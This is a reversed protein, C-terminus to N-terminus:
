IKTSFISKQRWLNKLKELFVSMRFCKKKKPPPPSSALLGLLHSSTISINKRRFCVNLFNCVLSLGLNSEISGFPLLGTEQHPYSAREKEGKIREREREKKSEKYVEREKM